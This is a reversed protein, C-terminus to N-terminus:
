ICGGEDVFVVSTRPMQNRDRETIVRLEFGAPHDIYSSRYTGSKIALETQWPEQHVSGTDGNLHRHLCRGVFEAFRFDSRLGVAVKASLLVYGLDIKTSM